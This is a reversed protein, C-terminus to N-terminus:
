KGWNSNSREIRGQATDCRVHGSHFFADREEMEELLLNYRRRYFAAEQRGGSWEGQRISWKLTALRPPVIHASNTVKQKEQPTRRYKVCVPTIVGRTTKESAKGSWL